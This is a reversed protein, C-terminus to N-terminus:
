QATDPVDQSEMQRLINNVELETSRLREKCFEILLAARQVKEALLDIGIDDNEIAQSIAKLEQYASEYTLETKDM